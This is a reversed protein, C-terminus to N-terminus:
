NLELENPVRKELMNVKNQMKSFVETSKTLKSVNDDEERYIIERVLYIADKIIDEESLDKIGLSNYKIQINNYANLLIIDATNMFRFSDIHELLDSNSIDMYDAFESNKDNRRNKRYKTLISSIINYIKYATIIKDDSIDKLIYDIRNKDFLAGKGRKALAANKNDWYGVYYQIAKELKIITINKCDDLKHHEKMYRYENIQRELYYGKELLNKQLERIMSYNSIFYSDRIPTQSNLYETIKMRESYDSIEIIRVLVSVRDKLKGKQSAMFLTNLTQCGNVVSAGDLRITRSNPSNDAKDCIFVIGNNYFYFMDSDEASTATRNIGNNINSKYEYLRINEDFIISIEDKVAEVIDSGKVFGVYSNIGRSDVNYSNNMNMYKLNISINNKRNLKDMINLIETVNHSIAKLKSGTKKKYEEVYNNIMEDNATTGQNYSVFHIQSSPVFVKSLLDKYDNFDKNIGSYPIKDNILINFGDLTKLIDSRSIETNINSKKDPFKFQFVQLIKDKGNEDEDIIIADIGRDDAGDIIIQEIEDKSLNYYNEFYWHAFAHSITKYEYTNKIKELESKLNNYYMEYKTIAM